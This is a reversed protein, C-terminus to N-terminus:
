KTHKKGHDAPVGADVVPAPAPAGADVTGTVAVVPMVVAAPKGADVVPAAVPAGADVVVPAAVVGADAATETKTKLTCCGLAFTVALSFLIKLKM